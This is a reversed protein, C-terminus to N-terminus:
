VSPMVYTLSMLCATRMVRAVDAVPMFRKGHVVRMPRMGCTVGVTCRIHMVYKMYHM